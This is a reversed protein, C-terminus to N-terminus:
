SESSSTMLQVTALDDDLEVPEENRALCLQVTSAAATHGGDGADAPVLM